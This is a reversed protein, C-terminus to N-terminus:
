KRVTDWRFSLGVPKDFAELHVQTEMTRIEAAVSAIRTSTERSKESNRWAFTTSTGEFQGVVSGKM